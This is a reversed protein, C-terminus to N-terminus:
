PAPGRLLHREHADVARELIHREPLARWRRCTPVEGPCPALTLPPDFACVPPLQQNRVLLLGLNRHGLTVLRDALSRPTLIRQPGVDGDAHTAQLLLPVRIVLTWFLSYRAHLTAYVAHVHARYADIVTAAADFDLADIATAGQAVAHRRADVASARADLGLNLADLRALARVVTDHPPGAHCMACRVGEISGSARRDCRGTLRAYSETSREWGCGTRTASARVIDQAIDDHLAVVFAEELLRLCEGAMAWDFSAGTRHMEPDPAILSSLM